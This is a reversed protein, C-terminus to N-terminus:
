ILASRKRADVPAYPFLPNFLWLASIDSSFLVKEKRHLVIEWRLLVNDWLYLVIDPRYLLKPNIKIQRAGEKTLAKIWKNSRM